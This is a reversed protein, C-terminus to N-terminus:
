FRQILTSLWYSQGDAEFEMEGFFAVHEGQAPKPLQGVYGSGNKGMPISAWRSERFDGSPSHAHWFKVKRPKPEVSLHLGYSSEDELSKWSIKPLERGQVVHRFFAAVTAGVRDGGGNLGHGANPVQLVFKPGELDPWYLKMADVVWYRDNTGNVLLKPMKLVSRYTYPDMMVRLKMERPSEDDKKILGKSWYDHIQDSYAGWVDLQHKMQPRFNLVDIVMPATAVIRKDVVPTLWSTWGRKSAGTIVFGKLETQWRENAVAELTDMAKVASKVMPFLLPWSDDGSELYRLWTETILDDEYRDDFLPQNPVQYLMAVRAGTMKALAFGMAHDGNGAPRGNRGGTVFLLMHDQCVVKKPEHVILSHEWTIDQWTQSRMAIEYLHGQPTDINKRLKWNYAPEPKAVYDFIASPLRVDEDRSAVKPEKGFSVHSLPAILLVILLLSKRM